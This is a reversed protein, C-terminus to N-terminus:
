SSRRRWAGLGLSSSPRSHARKVAHDGPKFSREGFNALEGGVRRLSRVGSAMRRLSASTARRTGRSESCYQSQRSFMSSSISCRELSLSASKNRNRSSAPRPLWCSLPRAARGSREHVRRDCAPRRPRSDAPASRRRRWGDATRPFASCSRRSRKLRSSLASM